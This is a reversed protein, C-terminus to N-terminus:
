DVQVCESEKKEEQPVPIDEGGKEKKKGKNAGSARADEDKGRDRTKALLGILRVHPKKKEEPRPTLPQEREEEGRRYSRAIKKEVEGWSQPGVATSRKKKKWRDRKIRRRKKKKKQAAPRRREKEKKEVEQDSLLNRKKLHRADEKKKKKRRHGRRRSVCSRIKESSLNKGKNKKSDGKEDTRSQKKGGEARSARTEKGGGKKRTKPRGKRKGGTLKLQKREGERFADRGGKKGEWGQPASGSVKKKGRRRLGYVDIKGEERGEQPPFRRAKPERKNKKVRRPGYEPL